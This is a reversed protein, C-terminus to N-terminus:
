LFRPVVREFEIVARLDVGIEHQNADPHPRAEVEGFFGSQCHISPDQDVLIEFGARRINEGGPVNGAPGIGIAAPPKADLMPHDRLPLPLGSRSVHEPAALSKDGRREKPRLM